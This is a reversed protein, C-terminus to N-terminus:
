EKLLLERKMEELQVAMKDIDDQMECLKEKRQYELEEKMEEQEEIQSKMGENDQERQNMLVEM